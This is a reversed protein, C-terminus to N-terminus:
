STLPITITFCSGKGKESKVDIEWNHIDMVTKVVSLGIGQGQERRSNTGRYFLEFVRETEEPTMGIGKDSIMIKARGPHLEADVRIEATPETYRIANSFINELARSVLTEDMKVKIGEPINTTTVVSRNFIEGTTLAYKEIDEIYKGLDREVFNKTWDTENMRIFNVMNDVMKELQESKQLIIQLSDNKKQEDKFIGDVIGETYGKIVALPTKLDHSIGMVFRDRLSKREKFVKRFEEMTILLNTIENSYGQDMPIKIPREVDGDKLKRAEKEVLNLSKEIKKFMILSLAVFFAEFVIAFFVIFDRPRPLTGNKLSGTQAVGKPYRVLHILQSAYSEIPISSIQYYYDEAKEFIRASLREADIRGKDPISPITSHIVIGDSFFFAEELNPSRERLYKTIAARDKKTLSKVDFSKMKALNDFLFREPATAYLYVYFGSLFLIPVATLVVLILIFHSRIKM